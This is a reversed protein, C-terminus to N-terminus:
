RLTLQDGRRITGPTVVSAYIGLNGGNQKVLTRMIKPDKPLGDFGHTTMICRPCAMEMKLVADGVTAERGAWTDEVFGSEGTDVVINPRFRRMDFNSEASAQQLAEIAGSSIILLPFADFYTGPPSEYSMLEAPFAALDPLPEDPTRAFVERLSAEMDTGEEPPLRRYHELQDAPLLPWISVASGVEASLVANIDEAGTNIQRGDALTITAEPSPEAATPEALLKASMGMLEPFRKGGKIGGREEDKLTWCRDGPLGLPTLAVEDLPHGGMSKIPYRFLDTIRISM